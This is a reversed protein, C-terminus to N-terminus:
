LPRAQLVKQQALPPGLQEDDDILLIRPMTASCPSEPGSAAM